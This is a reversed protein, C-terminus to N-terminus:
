ASRPYLNSIFAIDTPSLVQNWGVSFAPDTVLETPIPYEMVSHKDWVSNSITTGDYKAFVQQDVEQKSWNNPPGGYFAYVAPKNWPIAEAPSQHEHICGLAHGLEHLDRGPDDPWGMNGTPQDPPIELCERGVYSWSGHGLEFAFRLEAPGRVVQVIKLNAHEMWTNAAKMVAVRDRVRGGRFAIRLTQGPEWVAAKMVAMEEVHPPLLKRPTRDLCLRSMLSMTLRLVRSLHADIIGMRIPDHTPRTRDARM